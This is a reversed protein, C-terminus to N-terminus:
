RPRIRLKASTAVVLCDHWSAVEIPDAFWRVLRDAITAQEKVRVYFLGYTPVMSDRWFAVLDEDISGLLSEELVNDADYGIARLRAAASLVVCEDLKLRM